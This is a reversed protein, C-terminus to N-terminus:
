IEGSTKSMINISYIRLELNMDNETTQLISLPLNKIMPFDSWNNLSQSIHTHWVLWILAVIFLWDFQQQYGYTLLTRWSKLVAMSRKKYVPVPKRTNFKNMTKHMHNLEPSQPHTKFSNLIWYDASSDLYKAYVSVHSWPKEKWMYCSIKLSM